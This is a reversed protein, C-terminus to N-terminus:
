VIVQSVTLVLYLVRHFDQHEESRSLVEVLGGPKLILHGVDQSFSSSSRTCLGVSLYTSQYGFM